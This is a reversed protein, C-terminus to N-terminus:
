SCKKTHAYAQPPPTLECCRFAQKCKRFACSAVTRFCVWTFAKTFGCYWAFGYIKRRKNKVMGDGLKV